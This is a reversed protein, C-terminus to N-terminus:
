EAVDPTVPPVPPLLGAPLTALEYARILALASVPLTVLLGIGLLMSGIMNLVLLALYFALLEGVKAFTLEKSVRLAQKFDLGDVLLLPAFMFIFSSAFWGVGCVLAGINIALGVILYDGPRTTCPAFADDITPPEGLTAKRAAAMLGGVVPGFVLLSLGLGYQRLGLRLVVQILMSAIMLTFTVVVLESVHRKFTEWGYEFCEVVRM